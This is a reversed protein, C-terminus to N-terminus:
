SKPCQSRAACEGGASLIKIEDASRLRHHYFDALALQASIKDSSNDVYAKWDSEAATFDLQRSM